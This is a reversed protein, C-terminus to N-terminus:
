KENKVLRLQHDICTPLEEEYHSVIILTRSPDAQMYSDIVHTAQLRVTDDLGHFPEDLVLLSPSKVFARILLVLRQEGSSLELYSREALHDASFAAFWAKCTEREEDTVRRYLGLTDHLGSAVIDIAPLNKKYTSFIEPSVYGIRKKIDWISEGSGRKSGFLRIDCAYSIPNDACVLSLLTTKGAGNEGTLAWHEGECVRWSLDKLIHRGDYAVNVRRFDIVDASKQSNHSAPQINASYSYQPLPLREGKSATATDTPPCFHTKAKNRAVYEERSVPEGVVKKEVPIVKNIFSPIDRERCVVLVLTLRHAIDALLETLMERAAVDLGIYPNDIVLMQPNELLTRGLQFRRLEGSSLTNVARDLNKTVGIDALMQEEETTFTESSHSRYLLERVTPFTTEDGKNWRQQYYAPEAGGYVGRFTMLRIAGMPVHGDECFYYKARHNVGNDLLPHAGILMDTLLSKGAGNDGCIAVPEDKYLTLTVPAALRYAPYRTVGNNIEVLKHM